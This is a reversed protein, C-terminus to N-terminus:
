RKGKKEGKKSKKGGDGALERQAEGLAEGAKRKKEAGKGTKVAVTGGSKLGKGVAKEAEEWEMGEGGIQYRELPLSDILARKAEREEEREGREEAEDAGAQVLEEELAKSIAKGDIPGSEEPAEVAPITSAVGEETISRLYSSVKRVLKVFMALVQGDGLGVDKAVDELLRRQCGIAIMVAKQVTQLKVGELKGRFYLEAIRPMLDVIVHYDLMNNAYNELRLLDFPSFHKDLESKTM